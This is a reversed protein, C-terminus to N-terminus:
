YLWLVDLNERVREKRTRELKFRSGLRGSVLDFRKITGFPHRSSLHKFSNASGSLSAMIAIAGPPSPPSFLNEACSGFHARATCAAARM